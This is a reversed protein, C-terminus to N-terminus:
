EGEGAPEAPEEAQPQTVNPATKKLEKWLADDTFHGHHLVIGDANILVFTPANQARLARALSNEKADILWAGPPKDGLKKFAERAHKLLETDGDVVTAVAVGNSELDRAAKIFDPLLDQSEMTIPSWFHLLLVKREGRVASLKVDDGGTLPKLTTNFDFKVAKMAEELRMREIHPAYAAGQSPSLWFAETIHQKFAGKDGKKLAAIAQVYETTALWDEKTAFIESDEPKFTDKAALVEPLMAAVADDQNNDVHFLFRAELITQGKVGAKRAEEITQKLDDLNEHESFLNQIAEERDAAGAHAKDADAKENAAAAAPPNPKAPAKTEAAPEAAIAAAATLLTVFATRM